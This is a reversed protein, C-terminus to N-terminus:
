KKKKKKSKIEKILQKQEIKKQKKEDLTLKKKWFKRDEIEQEKKKKRRLVLLITLIILILLIIFLIIYAIRTAKVIENYDVTTQLTYNVNLESVNNNEANTTFGYNNLDIYTLEGFEDVMFKINRADYNALYDKMVIKFENEENPFVKFSVYKTGNYELEEILEVSDLCFSYHRLEIENSEKEFGFQKLYEVYGIYDEKNMFASIDDSEWDELLYPNGDNNNVFRQANYKLLDIPLYLYLRCGKNFNEIKLNIDREPVSLANMQHLKESSDWVIENIIGEADETAFVYSINSFLFIFILLISIIKKKLM